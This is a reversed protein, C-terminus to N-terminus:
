SARSTSPASPTAFQGSDGSSSDDDFLDEVAPGADDGPSQSMSSASVAGIAPDDGLKMRVALTTLVMLVAVVTLIAVWRAAPLRRNM